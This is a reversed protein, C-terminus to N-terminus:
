ASEILVGYVYVLLQLDHRWASIPGIGNVGAHWRRAGPSLGVTCRGAGPSHHRCRGAVAPTPASSSAADYRPSWVRDRRMLHVPVDRSSM